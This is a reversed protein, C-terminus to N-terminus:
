NLEPEYRPDMYCHRLTEDVYYKLDNFVWVGIHDEIFEEQQKEEVLTDLYNRGKELSYVVTNFDRSSLSYLFIGFDPIKWDELLEYLINENSDTNSRDGKKILFREVLKAILLVFGNKVLFRNEKSIFISSSSM